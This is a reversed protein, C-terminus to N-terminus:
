VVEERGEQHLCPLHWPGAVTGSLLFLLVLFGLDSIM